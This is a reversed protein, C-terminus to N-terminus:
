LFYRVIKKPFIRLFFVSEAGKSHGLSRQGVLETIFTGYMNCTTFGFSWRFIVCGVKCFIKKLYFCSYFSLIRMFLIYMKFNEKDKPSSRDQTQYVKSM